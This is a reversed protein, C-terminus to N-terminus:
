SKPRAAVFRRIVDAYAEPNKTYSSHGAGAFQHFEAAPYADRLRRQEEPKAIADNDSHIVLVDGSWAPDRRDEISAELRYRSVLSQRDLAALAEDYREIWFRRDGVGRLLLRVVLRLLGRSMSLPIKAARRAYARQREARAPDLGGTHSLILARTRGPHRRAYAQVFLGSFSAGLFVADRVGLDELLADMQDMAATADEVYPLDIGIVRVHPRLADFLLFFLDAGGVAGPLIVLAPTGQGQEYWRWTGGSITKSQVPVDRRFRAYREALSGANVM